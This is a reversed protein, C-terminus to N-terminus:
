AFGFKMYIDKLPHSNEHPDKKIEPIRKSDASGIM